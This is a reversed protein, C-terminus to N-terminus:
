KEVEPAFWVLSIRESQQKVEGGQKFTVKGEAVFMYAQPDSPDRSVTIKEAQLNLDRVNPDIRAEVKGEYITTAAGQDNTTTRVSESKMEFPVERQQWSNTQSAAYSAIAVLMLSTAFIKKM